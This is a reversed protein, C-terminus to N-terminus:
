CFCILDFLSFLLLVWKLYSMLRVLYRAFKWLYSPKSQWLFDGLWYQQLTSYTLSLHCDQHCLFLAWISILLQKQHSSWTQCPEDIRSLHKTHSKPKRSQSYSTTGTTLLNPCGVRLVLSPNYWPVIQYCMLHLISFLSATSPFLVKIAAQLEWACRLMLMCPGTTLWNHKWACRHLAWWYYYIKM